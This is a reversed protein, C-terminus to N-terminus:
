KQAIGFAVDPGIVKMQVVGANPMKGIKQMLSVPYSRENKSGWALNKFVVYIYKGKLDDEISDAEKGLKLIKEINEVKKQASKPLDKYDIVEGGFQAKAETIVEEVIKKLDSKRIKM